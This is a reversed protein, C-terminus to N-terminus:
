YDDSNCIHMKEVDDECNNYLEINMCDEIPETFFRNDNELLYRGVAREEECVVDNNYEEQSLTKQLTKLTDKILQIFEESTFKIHSYLIFEAYMEEYGQGNHIRYKYVKEM